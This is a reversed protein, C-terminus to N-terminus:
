SPGLARLLTPRQLKKFSSSMLLFDHSWIELKQKAFFALEQSIVRFLNERVRHVIRNGAVALIQSRATVAIGAVLTLGFLGAAATAALTGPADAAQIIDVVQGAVYPFLLTVGSTAALTGLSLAILHAEPRALSLIRSATQSRSPSDDDDSAVIPSLKSGQVASTTTMLACRCHLRLPSVARGRFLALRLM